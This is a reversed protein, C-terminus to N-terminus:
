AEVTAEEPLMIPIDDRVPYVRKCQGCRVTDALREYTLRNKQGCEGCAVVIGRDDLEPNTM